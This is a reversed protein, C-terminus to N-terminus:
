FGGKIQKKYSIVILISILMKYIYYLIRKIGSHMSKEKNLNMKVPLEKIKLNYYSLLLLMDADPYDIPFFRGAYIEQVRRNFAQFGSTPDKIKLGSLCYLLFSLTFSGIRRLAGAKYGMEEIFRSGISLDTEGNKVVNLLRHIDEPNHQGDADILVVYEFNNRLAYKVGTQIAIGYGCNSGLSIYNAQAAKLIEATSDTSGDNIVILEMDNSLFEEAKSIVGAINKEENFAPMIVATKGNNITIDM